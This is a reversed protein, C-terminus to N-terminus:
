NSTTAPRYKERLETFVPEAEKLAKGCADKDDLFREKFRKALISIGATAVAAGGEILAGEPNLSLTPKAFTGSIKIFPNVLDSVSFGLGKQPVTNITADFQETDLDIVASALIRLRDTQAVLIPAGAAKGNEAQVLIVACQFNTYPDTKAFPNVTTLVESLFDSTFFRLASAKLRGEGGVLRLYGSLSAALERVTAGRGLLITDLEYRPLAALEEATTAPMGLILKSGVVDLILSAADGAPRLVFNGRLSGGLNNRVGFQEVSLTGDALSGVLIIDSFEKVGVDIEAIDIDVTATFKQLAQMPIPTDPILREKPEEPVPEEEDAGDEDRPMYPGLNLRRSVLKIEIEPVDGHRLSFNGAIDSDGISGEFQEFRMLGRSGLLHFKLHAADAPLERGAFVSLPSLNAINLDIVLDTGDYNPSRGITGGGVLTGKALGLDLETLTWDGDNWRGSTKLRLPVTETQFVAYEAPVLPVLDPSNADVSFSGHGMVPKMGIDFAATADLGPLEIKAGSLSLTDDTMRVRAAVRFPQNLKAFNDDEPLLSALDDGRVELTVDTGSLSPMSGLQGSLSARVGGLSANVGRLQLRNDRSLVEGTLVFKGPPVADIEVGLSALTKRIDAAEAEVRLDTDRELPKKGILGSVYVRDPGLQAHGDEIAFGKDVPKVTGAASYRASPLEGADIGFAALTGGLNPGQLEFTLNTDAELPANGVVGDFSAHDDGISTSGDMLRIGEPVRELDVGLEYPKSPMDAFGLADTITRLNEGGLDVRLTTGSLDPTDTVAGAITFQIDRANATMAVTGSGDPQPELEIDMDFPGTLKGPLGLLRNFRGVDPGDIQMRVRAGAPRAIDDIRAEVVFRAKGINVTLEEVNIAPGTRTFNAVVSFPEEPMNPNGALSAVTGANPGSAAVRLSIEELAQLDRFQGSVDLAFEGVDGNLNLQMNDGVPAISAVLDLPGSTIPDVELKATLYEVNPGSLNLRMTPRQPRLLSDMTAEGQLRIEGLNADVDFTVDRYTVLNAVLGTRVSLDLPTENLEADLRIDLYDEDDLEVVLESANFRLPRPREPSAYILAVDVISALDVIVPLDGPPGTDEAPTEQEEPEFFEWNGTGTDDQELNVRVHEVDLSEIHIPRSLLSLTKISVEFRGVRVMDADASWETGALRVGSAAVRIRDLDVEVSFDGDISFERDLVETVTDELKGQFRGFDLNLVIGLCIALVALVGFLSYLAIRTGRMM